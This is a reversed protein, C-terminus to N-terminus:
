SETKKTGRGKAYGDKFEKIQDDFFWKALAITSQISKKIFFGTIMGGILGLKKANKGIWTKEFANKRRNIMEEKVDNNFLKERLKEPLYDNIMESTYGKRSLEDLFENTAKEKGTPSNEIKESEKKSKEEGIPSNKIRELWKKIFEQMLFVKRAESFTEIKLIPNDKDLVKIKDKLNHNWYIDLDEDTINGRKIIEKQKEGETYIELDVSKFYECFANLKNNFKELDTAGEFGFNSEITKEVLKIRETGVVKESKGKKEDIFKFDPMLVSFERIYENGKESRSLHTQEIGWDKIDESEIKKAKLIVEGDESIYIEKGLISLDSADSIEKIQKLFSIKKDLLNYGKDSKEVYSRGSENKNKEFEKQIEEDTIQEKQEGKINFYYLEGVKNKGLYGVEGLGFDSIKGLIIQKRHITEVNLDFYEEKKDENENKNENKNENLKLKELALEKLLNYIRIEKNSLNGSKIKEDILKIVEVHSNSAAIFFPKYAAELNELTKKKDEPSLKDLDALTEIKFKDGEKETKNETKEEKSEKNEKELEKILLNKFKENTITKDNEIIEILEKITKNPFKTKLGDIGQEILKNQAEQQTEQKVEQQQKEKKM